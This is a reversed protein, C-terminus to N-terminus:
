QATFIGRKGTYSFGNAFVQEFDISVGMTKSETDKNRQRKKYKKM